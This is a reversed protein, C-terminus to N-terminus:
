ERTIANLVADLEATDIGRGTAYVKLERGLELFTAMVEEEDDMPFANEIFYRTERIASQLHVLPGRFGKLAQGLDQRAQAAAAKAAKEDAASRPTEGAQKAQKAEELKETLGAEAKEKAYARREKSVRTVDRGVLFGIEADGKGEDVLRRVEAKVEVATLDGLARGKGAELEDKGALAGGVELYARDNSVTAPSVGLLAAVETESRTYRGNEQREGSLERVQARRQEIPLKIFGGLHEQVWEDFSLELAEPVGMTRAFEMLTYDGAMSGGLGKTFEQAEARSLKSKAKSM